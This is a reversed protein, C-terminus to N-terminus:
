VYAPLTAWFAGEVTLRTDPLMDIDPVSYDLDALQCVANLASAVAGEQWGSLHSLQDGVIYFTNNGSEDPLDGKTLNNFHALYNDVTQPWQAWGGKQYPMNQWAIALGHKLGNAFENGGLNGAQEKAWQLRTQPGEQGWSRAVASFNYAGTLVGLEAHYQDSPYWIQNIGESSWSIGGYIPVDGDGKAEQWLSREAQWGVKTTDALFKRRYGDPEEVGVNQAKYVANLASQFAISFDNIQLKGELLPIPINSLCYDAEITNGSKGDQHYAICYKQTQSNYEIKEVVANLEIEIKDTYDTELKNQFACVIKDMGGVPQFLTPQWLFDIPQYFNAKSWFESRVLEQLSLPPAPEGPNVGPLVNYGARDSGEYKGKEDLDGFRILFEKFKELEFISLNSFIGCKLLRYLEQAVWGQMNYALQRNPTSKNDFHNEGVYTLNSDSAMVYVEMPVTLKKMYGLLLKHSSPIRGPGANLYPPYPEGDESEFQCKQADYGEEKIEDEPRVTFSRGGVRDNAELIVCRSLGISEKSLLEYASALGAVGAGLIVATKGQGFNERGFPVIVNKRCKKIYEAISGRSPDIAAWRPLQSKGRDRAIVM